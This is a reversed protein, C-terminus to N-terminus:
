IDDSQMIKAAQTAQVSDDETMLRVLFNTDVAIM